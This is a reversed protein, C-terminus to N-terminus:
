ETGEEGEGAEEESTERYLSYEGDFWKGLDVLKCRNSCFPFLKDAALDRSEVAAKCVPCATRYM